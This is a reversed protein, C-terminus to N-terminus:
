KKEKEKKQNDHWIRLCRGSCFHKNCSCTLVLSDLIDKNCVACKTM